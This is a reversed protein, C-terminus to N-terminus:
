QSVGQAHEINARVLELVRSPSELQPAHGVEPLVAVRVRAPLSAVSSFPVIADSMGWVIQVPCTVAQLAASVDISSSSAQPFLDRAMQQQAEVLGPAARSAMVAGLFEDSLIGKDAVMLELSQRLQEANAANALGHVFQANVAAGCGAPALLTMSLVRESRAKALAVACAAGLSHGILHFSDLGLADVAQVVEDVLAQFSEIPHQPSRGHNPLDLAIVQFAQSLPRSLPYWSMADAGFGHLMLVTPGHAGAKSVNLRCSAHTATPTEGSAQAQLVDRLKIRGSPSSSAILGLDLSLGRAQARAAPSAVIRGEKRVVAKVTGQSEASRDKTSEEASAPVSSSEGIATDQASAGILGLVQTLAVEDGENFYIATLIGDCPALIETSAKATEVVVIVDEKKVTDNLKATWEVIVVSEM